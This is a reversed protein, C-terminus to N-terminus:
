KDPDQLSLIYHSRGTAEAATVIRYTRGRFILTRGSVPHPMDDDATYLESDITILTSDVTLFYSKRVFLKLATRLTYGGDDNEVTIDERIAVCLVEKNKWTFSESGTDIELESLVSDLERAMPNDAVNSM